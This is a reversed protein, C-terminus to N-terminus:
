GRRAEPDGRDSLYLRNNSGPNPDSRSTSHIFVHPGKPDDVHAGNPTDASPTALLAKPRCASLARFQGASIAPPAAGAGGLRELM